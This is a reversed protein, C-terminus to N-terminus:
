NSTYRLEEGIEELYQYPSPQNINEYIMEETLTDDMVMDGISVTFEIVTKALSVMAKLISELTSVIITRIHSLIDIKLVLKYLCALFTISALILIIALITVHSDKHLNDAGNHSPRSALYEVM